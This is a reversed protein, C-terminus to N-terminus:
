LVPNKKAWPLVMRSNTSTFLSNKLIEAWVFISEVVGSQSIPCWISFRSTFIHVLLTNVVLIKALHICLFFFSRTREWKSIENTGLTFLYCSLYSQCLQNIVSMEISFGLFSGDRHVISLGPANAGNAPLNLTFANLPAPNPLPPPTLRTEDYAPLNTPQPGSLISQTFAVPIQGYVTVHARTSAFLCISWLISLLM